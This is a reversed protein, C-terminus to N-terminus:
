PETGGMPLSRQATREKALQEYGLDFGIWRRGYKEAVAGTTGSGFFVDLVLDGPRSGALVCPEILKPPFTAFHAGLALMGGVLSLPAGNLSRGLRYRFVRDDSFRAWGVNNISFDDIVVARGKASM